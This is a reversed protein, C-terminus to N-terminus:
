DVQIWAGGDNPVNIYLQEEALDFALSGYPVSQPAPMADSDAYLTVLGENKRGRGTQAQAVGAIKFVKSAPRVQQKKKNNSM